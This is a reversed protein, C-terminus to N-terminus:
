YPDKSLLPFQRFLLNPTLPPVRSSIIPTRATRMTSTKKILSMPYGRVTAPALPPSFIRPSTLVTIAM